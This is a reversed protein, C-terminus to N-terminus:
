GELVVLESVLLVYLLAPSRAQGGAAEALEPLPLHWRLRMEQQLVLALWGLAHLPWHSKEDQPGSSVGKGNWCVQIAPDAPV